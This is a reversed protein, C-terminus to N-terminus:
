TQSVTVECDLLSAAQAAHDFHTQVGALHGLPQVAVTGRNVALRFAVPAGVPVPGVAGRDPTPSSLADERTRDNVTPQKRTRRSSSKTSM